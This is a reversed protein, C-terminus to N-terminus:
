VMSAHPPSTPTQRCCGCCRPPTARTPPRTFPPPATVGVTVYFLTLHYEHIKGIYIYVATHGKYTATHLASTGDRRFDFLPLQPIYIYIYIYIHTYM